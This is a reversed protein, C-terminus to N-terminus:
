FCFVEKVPVDHAEKPLEQQYLQEQFCIGWSVINPHQSLFKDYCGLGYGLRTGFSDFVIGPILAHTIITGSFVPKSPIKELSSISSLAKKESIKVVLLNHNETHKPFFLQARELLFNNALSTDIESGISSFSLVKAEKPISSVFALLNKSAQQRRNKSLEKRIQLFQKRILAKAEPAGNRICM